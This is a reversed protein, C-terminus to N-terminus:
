EEISAVLACLSDRMLVAYPERRKITYMVRSTRALRDFWVLSYHVINIPLWDRVLESSVYGGVLSDVNPPYYVFDAPIDIEISAKIIEPIRPLKFEECLGLLAMLWVSYEDSDYDCRACEVYEQIERPLGETRQLIGVAAAALSNSLIRRAIVRLQAASTILCVSDPGLPSNWMVFWARDFPLKPMPDTRHVIVGEDSIGKDGDGRTINRFMGARISLELTPNVQFRERIVRLIEDSADCPAKAIFVAVTRALHQMFEGCRLMQGVTRIAGAAGSDGDPCIADFRMLIAELWSLHAPSLAAFGTPAKKKLIARFFSAQDYSLTPILERLQACLIRVFSMTLLHGVVTPTRSLAVTSHGDASTAVYTSLM